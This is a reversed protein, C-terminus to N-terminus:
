HNAISKPKWNPIWDILFWYCAIFLFRIRLRLRFLLQAAAFRSSGHSVAHLPEYALPSGCARAWACSDKTEKASRNFHTQPENSTRKIHAKSSRRHTQQTTWFRKQLTETAIWIHTESANWNRKFHLDKLKWFCTGVRKSKAHWPWM